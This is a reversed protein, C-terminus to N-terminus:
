FGPIQLINVAVLRLIFISFLCFLLGIIASTVTEKGGAVKKEDGSSTAIVIFGYVMLLFAIGGAINFVINMVWTIFSKTDTAVCGFSTSVETASCNLSPDYAAGEEFTIKKQYITGGSKVNDSEQQTMCNCYNGGSKVYTSDVCQAVYPSICSKQQAVWIGNIQVCSSCTGKGEQAPPTGIKCFCTPLGMYSKCYATYTKGDNSSCAKIHEGQFLYNDACWPDTGTSSNCFIYGGEEIIALSDNKFFLGFIVLTLVMM